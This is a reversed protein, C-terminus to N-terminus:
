GVTGGLKAFIAALARLHDGSLSYEDGAAPSYIRIDSAEPDRPQLLQAARAFPRMAELIEPLMSPPTPLRSILEACQYKADIFAQDATSRSGAPWVAEGEAADALCMEVAAEIGAKFGLAHEAALQARLSEITAELDAIKGDAEDARALALRFQDYNRDAREVQRTYIEDSWIENALTDHDGIM